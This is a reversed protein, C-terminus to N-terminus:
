HLPPRALHKSAPRSARFLLLPPRRRHIALDPRQHARTPSPTPEDLQDLSLGSNLIGNVIDSISRHYKIVDDIFWSTHRVGPDAYSDVLGGTASQQAPAATVIPHEMSAVLAGGPRLWHYISELLTDLDAIYHLALSSVVVDVSESPLVVDEAFQQFYRVRGDHTRERAVALM